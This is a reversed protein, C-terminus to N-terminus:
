PASDAGGDPPGLWSASALGVASGVRAGVGSGVGVGVGVGSGVGVGVGVGIGVGAGTAAGSVPTGTVGSRAACCGIATITSSRPGARGCDPNEAADTTQCAGASPPM